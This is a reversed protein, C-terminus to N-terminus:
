GFLFLPILVMSLGIGMVIFWVIIDYIKKLFALKPGDENYISTMASMYEDEVIKNTMM